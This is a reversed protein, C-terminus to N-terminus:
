TETWQREKRQNRDRTLLTKTIIKQLKEITSTTTIKSNYKDNEYAWKKKKRGQDEKSLKEKKQIMKENIKTRKDNCQKM